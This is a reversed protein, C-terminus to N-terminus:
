PLSEFDTEDLLIATPASFTQWHQFCDIFFKCLCVLSSICVNTTVLKIILFELVLILQIAKHLLNVVTEVLGEAECYAPIFIFWTLM